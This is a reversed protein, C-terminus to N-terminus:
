IDWASHNCGAMYAHVASIQHNLNCEYAQALDEKSLQVQEMKSMANRCDAFVRSRPNWQNDIWLYNPVYNVNKM